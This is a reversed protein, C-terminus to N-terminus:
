GLQAMKIVCYEKVLSTAPDWLFGVMSAGGNWSRQSQDFQM